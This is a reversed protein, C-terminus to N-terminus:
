VALKKKGIVIVAMLCVASVSMMLLWGNLNFDDATKPPQEYVNTFVVQGEVTAKLEGTVSDQTITVKLEQVSKDYVVGQVDGKIESFQYTYTNGIDAATYTVTFKADGQADSTATQDTGIMQFQFGAPTLNTGSTGKLVKKIALEVTLEKPTFINTFSYAETPKGDVTAVAKMVGDTYTVTVTVTYKTEDYTVQTDSGKIETIEYTYTGVTDYTLTTFLFNGYVDNKVTEDVGEGKLNFSFENEKLDRGGSLTKKGALVLTADPAKFTNTIKNNNGGYAVQAILKGEGNDKVTVTVQISSESYGIGALDGKIETITYTYTDAKNFTLGAFTVQSGVNKVTEVEKGESDKLIFSFDGDKPTLAVSGGSTIDLLEKQAQIVVDTAAEAKYENEFVLTPKQVTAKLKGSGDDTVTITVTYVTEDYIIGGLSGKVESVTYTYVDAKDFTLGTFTFSGGVNKVTEVEKGKSDKLIFSFDGDKPTMVVNGGGTINVLNKFGELVVPDTEGAKYTNRFVIGQDTGGTISTIAAELHGMLDDTVTVTITYTTTDYTIGTKDENKETVPSIYTCTQKITLEDFEFSGGAANTVTQNVGNGTLTFSFEGATLPYDSPRGTLIKTGAIVLTDEEATYTNVFTMATVTTQGQAYATQAVLRGQNNDTVTVTITYTVDSYTYGAVSGAVERLTYVYTGAQTYTIGPIKVAGNAENEFTFTQGVAGEPMPAGNQGMLQFTFDGANVPMNQNLGDTLNTLTKNAEMDSVTVDAAHYVNQFHLATGGEPSSVTYTAVLAGWHNDTVTVTVTYVTPDYIIGGLQDNVEVVTYQYTGAATYTIIGFEVQGRADNHVTLAGAVAGHPMPAGDKATLTFQFDGTKLTKGELVKHAHLELTGDQVDYTNTFDLAIADIGVPQGNLTATAVLQGEGNDIVTIVLAYTNTAYTVGGKDGKVESITYSYVGAHDFTLADFAFSGDAANTVTQDVGNGTIHFSFEGAELARTLNKGDAVTLTKSGGLNVAATPQALYTNAFAMGTTVPTGALSIDTTAVLHGVLDDTVTVTITYVKTADYTYGPAGLNQEQLTYQYVGPATYTIAPITVVAGAAGSDAANGLELSTVGGPLPAGNLGTLTFKFQGANMAMYGHAGPTQNYLTKTATIPTTVVEEAEYTNVFTMVADAALPGNGDEVTIETVVHNNDMTVKVAISYKTKDYTVGPVKETAPEVETLEYHYTRGAHQSTYVIPPFLINGDQGDPMTYTNGAALEPMPVAAGDVEQSTANDTVKVGTLLFNFEGAQLTRGNLVKLAAPTWTANVTDYINHFDATINWANERQADETVVLNTGSAYTRGAVSAIELKGDLDQDTVTVDFVNRIQDYTVGAENGVEEYIRFAYVGVADFERDLVFSYTQKEFSVTETKLTQWAPTALSADWYQLHINFSLGNWNDQLLTGLGNSLYKTGSIAFHSTPIVKNPTYSNQLAVRPSIGTAPSVVTGGGTSVLAAYGSPMNDTKETATYATGVPVQSVTITQGDQITVTVKGNADTTKELGDVLIIKNAYGELAIEVDFTALYGDQASAGNNYTVTKSVYFSGYEIEDNTFVVNRLTYPTIEGSATPVSVGDVTIAPAFVYSDEETISFTPNVTSEAPANVETIWVAEGAKLQLTLKNDVLAQAVPDSHTVEGDVVVERILSVSNDADGTITVTFTFVDDAINTADEAVEKTLMIGQAPAYVMRGNNGQYMLEYSNTATANTSGNVVHYHAYDHTETVNKGSATETKALDYDYTRAYMSGGPMYWTGDSGHAANALDTKDMKVLKTTTTAKYATPDETDLTGDTTYVTDQFYLDATADQPQTDGQYPTGDANVLITDKAFFYHENEPSPEFHTYSMSHELTNHLNDKNTEKEWASAYLYYKGYDPDNPDTILTGYERITVDNVQETDVGVEYVLEIPHADNVTITANNPDPKGDAGLKMNIQYTLTPLLEAPIQFTVMREDTRMNRTLRVAVYMMNTNRGTIEVSGLVGYDFNVYLEKAAIKALIAADNGHYPYPAVYNGKDDGYWGIYNSFATINGDGDATYGLQGESWANNILAWAINNAAVRADEVAEESEDAPTVSIGMRAKVARVFEDGLATPNEKTGLWFTEEVDSVTKDPNDNLWQIWKDTNYLLTAMQIGSFLTDGVLIGKVQEVKMGKGLTDCFTIYGSYNSGNDDTRTPYYGAQLSIENVINQFVSSLKGADSAPFYRDVYYPSLAAASKTITVNEFSRGDVLQVTMTNESDTLAQYTKWLNDIGEHAANPNLVKEAIAKQSEDSINDLGFGVTYILSRGYKAKLQERLYSLTLQTVFGDGNYSDSGTGYKANGVNDFQDTTYTPAGDSMLIVAPVRTGEIEAKSFHDEFAEWLGGQIYTGGSCSVRAEVEEGKSNLPGNISYNRNSYTGIGTTIVDRNSLYTLYTPATIADSTAGTYHDLPLLTTASSAYLIVGVRNEENGQMLLRIANNVADVMGSLATANMSGSIDLVFVVDTPVGSEGTVVSNSGLASLLVLFNDENHLTIGNNALRDYEALTSQTFVSKDTWIAGAYDTSPKGGPLFMERWTDLTVSDAVTQSTHLGTSNAKASFQLAPLVSLIMVVSLIMAIIRKPLTYTHLKM